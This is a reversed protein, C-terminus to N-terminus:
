KNFTKSIDDKADKTFIVKSLSLGGDYSSIKLENFPRNLDRIEQASNVTIAEIVVALMIAIIIFLINKLNDV